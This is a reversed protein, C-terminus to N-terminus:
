AIIMAALWRLPDRKEKVYAVIFIVLFLYGTMSTLMAFATAMTLFASLRHKPALYFIGTFTAAVGFATWSPEYGFGSPRFGYYENVAGGHVNLDMGMLHWGLYSAVVYTCLFYHIAVLSRVM